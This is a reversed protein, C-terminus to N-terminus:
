TGAQVGRPLVPEGLRGTASGEGARLRRVYDSEKRIRKSRGETANEFGDGLPDPGHLVQARKIPEAVPTTSLPQSPQEAAPSTDREGLHTEVVQNEKEGELPPVEVDTPAEAVNFKVSREITIARREPWYIRHADTEEDFGVWRAATARSALK